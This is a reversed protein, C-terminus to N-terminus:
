LFYTSSKSLCAADATIVTCGNTYSFAIADLSFDIKLFCLVTPISAVSAGMHACATTPQLYALGLHELSVASLKLHM